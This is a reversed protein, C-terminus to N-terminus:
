PYEPSSHFDWWCMRIGNSKYTASIGWLSQQDLHRSDKAAAVAAAAVAAAAAAAAAAGQAFAYM